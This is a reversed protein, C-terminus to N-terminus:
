DICKLRFHFANQDCVAILSTLHSYIWWRLYTVSPPALHSESKMRAIIFFIAHYLMAHRSINIRTHNFIYKIMYYVRKYATCFLIALMFLNIYFLNKKRQKNRKKLFVKLQRWNRRQKIKKTQLQNPANKKRENKNTLQIVNCQLLNISIYLAKNVIFIIETTTASTTSFFFLFWIFVICHKAHLHKQWKKKQISLVLVTNACRVFLYDIQYLMHLDCNYNNVTCNNPKFTLFIFMIKHSCVNFLICYFIM